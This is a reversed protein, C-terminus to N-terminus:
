NGLSAVVNPDFLTVDTVVSGGFGPTFGLRVGNTLSSIYDPYNGYISYKISECDSAAGQNNGALDPYKALFNFIEDANDYM